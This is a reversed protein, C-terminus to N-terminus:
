NWTPTSECYKTRKSLEGKVTVEFYTNALWEKDNRFQRKYNQGNPIKQTAWKPRHDGTFRHVFKSKCQEQLYKCMHSGLIKM